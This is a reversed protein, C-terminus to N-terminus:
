PLGHKPQFFWYLIGVVAACIGFIFVVDSIGQDSMGRSALSIVLSVVAFWLPKQSREGKQADRKNLLESM